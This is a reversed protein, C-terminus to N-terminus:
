FFKFTSTVTVSLTCVICYVSLTLFVVLWGVLLGVFLDGVWGDM